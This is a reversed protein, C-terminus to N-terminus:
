LIDCYLTLNKRRSFLNKYDYSFINTVSIKFVYCLNPNASDKEIQNAKKPFVEYSGAIRIAFWGMGCVVISGRINFRKKIPIELHAFPINILKVLSVKTIRDIFLKSFAFFCM